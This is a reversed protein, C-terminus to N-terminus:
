GSARARSRTGKGSVRQCEAAIQLYAAGRYRAEVRDEEGRSVRCLGEIPAFIESM